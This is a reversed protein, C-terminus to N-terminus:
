RIYKILNKNKRTYTYITYIAGMILYVIGLIIFPTSVSKNFIFIDIGFTKTLLLNILSYMSFYIAISIVFIALIYIILSKLETSIYNKYTFGNMRTLCYLNKNLKNLSKIYGFVYLSAGILVLSVLSFFLKSLLNVIDIVKRAYIYSYCYYEINRIQLFDFVARKSIDVMFFDFSIEDNINEKIDDSFYICVQDSEDEVIGDVIFYGYQTKINYEYSGDYDFYLALAKNLKCHYKEITNDIKLRVFSQTSNLYFAEYEDCLFSNYHFIASYIYEQNYSFDTFEKENLNEKKYLEYNTEIIGSVSVIFDNIFIGFNIIDDYNSYRSDTLIIADAIYDSIAIKTTDNPAKGALFEFNNFDTYVNSLIYPKYISFEKFDLNAEGDIHNSYDVSISYDSAMKKLTEKRIIMDSNEVVDQKCILYADQNKSLTEYVFDNERFFSFDFLVELLLVFLSIIITFIISKSLSRKFYSKFMLCSQPKDISDRKVQYNNGEYDLRTTFLDDQKKIVFSKKNKLIQNMKDISISHLNVDGYFTVGDEDYVVDSVTNNEKIYELEGNNLRVILNCYANMMEMDHSVLIVLKNEAIESLLEFVQKTTKEDLSSTPEDVLLIDYDKELGRLLSVKQKQGGSLEDPYKDKKEYIEFRNFVGIDYNPNILCINDKVSLNRVFLNEQFVFSVISKRIYDINSTVDLNNIYIDGEFDSDLTSLINLFTTKGCGNEGALGVFGKNPLQLSIDDLAKVEDDKNKYVKTVNVFKIM